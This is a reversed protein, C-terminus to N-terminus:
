GAHRPHRADLRGEGDAGHHLARRRGPHLLSPRSHTAERGPPDCDWDPALGAPSVIRGDTRALAHIATMEDASLAFDLIAANEALRAPTVTKSLAIM